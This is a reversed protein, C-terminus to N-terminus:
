AVAQEVADIWSHIVKIHVEQIRDAYGTWPVRVEADCLSALAGGSNGTLGVVQMGMAKAAHAAAVVNASNGSTTIAVLVDGPRGLAEVFRAFVHEFGYDNGVCTLHAVPPITTEQAIARTIRVTRDQTSGGAGYTVSVFSPNLAELERVTQWLNAEGDYTKPPFLEFSFSREGSALVEGLSARSGTTEM